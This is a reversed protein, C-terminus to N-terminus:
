RSQEDARKLAANRVAVPQGQKNRMLKFTARPGNLLVQLMRLRRDRVDTDQGVLLVENKDLGEPAVKLHQEIWAKMQEPSTVSNLQKVVEDASNLEGDVEPPIM